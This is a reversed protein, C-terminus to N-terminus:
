SCACLAANFAAYFPGDLNILELTIERDPPFGAEKLDDLIASLLGPVKVHQSKSAMVWGEVTISSM